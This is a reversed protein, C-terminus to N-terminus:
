SYIGSYLYSPAIMHTDAWGSYNEFNLELGSYCFGKYFSGLSDGLASGILCAVFKLKLM